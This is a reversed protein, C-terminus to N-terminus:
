ARTRSSAAPRKAKKAEKKAPITRRGEVVHTVKPMGRAADAAVWAANWAVTHQEDRGLKRENTAPHFFCKIRQMRKIDAFVRNFVRQGADGWGKWVKANVKYKNKVVRPM